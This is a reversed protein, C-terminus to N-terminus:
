RNYVIRFGVSEFETYAEPDMALYFFSRHNIQCCFSNSDWGGGRLVKKPWTDAISLTNPYDDYKSNHDSCWEEVNGSMDYIGLENPQKTGVKHTKGGSNEDYWAVDNINNSGSYKYSNSNKIEGGRAAYCWEVETPLRGGKWKCYARAAYWTVYIAPCDINDAYKSGRFYFIGNEIRIPCGENDLDLYQHWGVRGTSSVRNENLFEIFDKITVEHKAIYFDEIYVTDLDLSLNNNDYHSNNIQLPGGNVYVMGKINFKLDLEIVWGDIPKGELKPEWYITKNQGPIVNGIDGVVVEPTIREGFNNKAEITITYECKDNGTLDYCIVIRGNDIKQQVNKIQQNFTIQNSAKM